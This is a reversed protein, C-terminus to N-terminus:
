EARLRPAMSYNGLPLCTEQNDMIKIKCRIPDTYGVVKLTVFSKTRKLVECGWICDYNCISHMEYTKGSKFNNTTM